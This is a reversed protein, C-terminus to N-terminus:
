KQDYTNRNTEQINIDIGSVLHPNKEPQLKSQLNKAEKTKEMVLNRVDFSSM